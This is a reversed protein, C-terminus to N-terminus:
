GGSSGSLRRARRFVEATLVAWGLAGLARPLTPLPTPKLPNLKAFRGRRTIHPALHEDPRLRPARRAPGPAGGFGGM